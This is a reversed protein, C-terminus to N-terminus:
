CANIKMEELMFKNVMTVDFKEEVLKRSESGMTSITDPNVIFKKMAVVLEDVTKIPVLYGNIGEEVTERCGPADTTIIPRGMAMAELVSRSTGERYSPLVYISCQAIAPRVDKLEGWYNIVGSAIWQELQLQTIAAPNEDLGGVLHFEADPYQKKVVKAAEFYEVLGKDKLLRAILLFSPKIAGLSDIPFPQVSYNTTDVGSGNVVVAPTSANLLNLSKFLSLDDPNQFFVKTSKSLAQRYLSHVLKQFSSRNNTGEVEQFTYGLGSLLIFRKPVKALWAAFTGYIIPKITYSLMYDPKIDRLLRYIAVLTQIDILPNTGTRQMPIHHVSYGLNLLKTYAEAHSEADPALVHIEYGLKAVAELLKGRFNLVHPLYNACILFKM